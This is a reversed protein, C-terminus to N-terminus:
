LPTRCILSSIHRPTSCPTCMSAPAVRSRGQSSPSGRALVMIKIPRSRGRTSITSRRSAQRAQGHGAPEARQQEDKHQKSHLLTTQQMSIHVGALSDRVGYQCVGRRVLVIGIRLASRRGTEIAQCKGCHGTREGIGTANTRWDQRSLDGAPDGDRWFRSKRVAHGKLAASRRRKLASLGSGARDM